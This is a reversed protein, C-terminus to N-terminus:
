PKKFDERGNACNHSPPDGRLKKWAERVLGVLEGQKAGGGGRTYPIKKKGNM